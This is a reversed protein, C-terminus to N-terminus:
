VINRLHANLMIASTARCAHLAAIGAKDPAHLRDRSQAGRSM